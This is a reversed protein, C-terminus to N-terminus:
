FGEEIENEDKTDKNLLSNILILEDALEKLTNIGFLEELPLEIEL